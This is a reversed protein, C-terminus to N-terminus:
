HRRSNGVPYDGNAGAPLNIPVAPNASPRISFASEGATASPRWYGYDDIGDGDYDGGIPFDTASAGWVITPQGVGGSDRTTWNLVGSASRVLTIDAPTGGSHNGVMVIDTPAGFNFISALNGNRGDYIRFGGVGSGANFQVAMDAIGDGTYDIGGAPFNGNEGTTLVREAGGRSPLIRTSSPAGSTAGARYVTADSVGDGDYDGVLTPDDGTVGHTITLLRSPRSSPRIIFQGPVGSSVRWITADDIGDGDWDGSLFFDGAKGHVFSTQTGTTTGNNSRVTWTVDGTPGGGTNRVTVFSTRGTGTLDLWALTCSGRLLPDFGDAFVSDGGPEVSLTASSISGTDGSARDAIVLSWTGNVDGPALGGFVRAFSTTCGGHDVSAGATSSRYRGNPVNSGTTLPVLAAWLDAGQDDFAYVGALNASVGNSSLRRYGPRGFVVLRATGNPSILTAELDGIYTHTLGLNLRVTRIPQTFGSVSFNVTRGNADTDPIAGLNGGAFDAAHVSPAAVIMATALLFGLGQRM